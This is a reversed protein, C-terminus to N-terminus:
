KPQKWDLIGSFTLTGLTISNRGNLEALATVCYVEGSVRYVDDDQDDLQEQRIDTWCADLNASNYFRGEDEEILTVNTALERGEVGKKLDPIGLILALPNAGPGPGSFRLRAGANNPRPMGSCDLEQASWRITEDIAGFLQASVSAGAPCAVTIKESDAGLVQAVPASGWSIFWFLLAYLPKKRFEHLKQQENNDYSFM